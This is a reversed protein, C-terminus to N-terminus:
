DDLFAMFAKPARSPSAHLSAYPSMTPSTTPTAHPGNSSSRIPQNVNFENQLVHL